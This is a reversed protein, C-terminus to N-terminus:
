MSINLAMKTSSVSAVPVFRASRSHSSVGSSFVGPPDLSSLPLIGDIDDPALPLAKRRRFPVTQLHCIARRELYHRSSTPLLHARGKSRYRRTCLGIHGHDRRHLHTLMSDRPFLPALKSSRGMRLELSPHVEGGNEKIWHLLENAAELRSVDGSM